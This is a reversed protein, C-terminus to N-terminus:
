PRAGGEGVETALPHLFEGVAAAFAQPQDAHVWHGAGAVQRVQARPFLRRIVTEHEGRIYDSQAGALFLVPGDYCGGDPFGLLDDMAALLVALNPRWRYGTAGSELNQLLFARVRPDPIHGALMADFEDRRGIGELRVARMARIYPAFTHTYRVPAIDVVVLREVLDPRTLALVMAAKGGMSHGLVAAPAGVREIVAAAERALFPYDMAETWPSAGHNPLDVAVVHRSAALANVIGAWNRASGLLGHLIVLGPGAGAEITHLRMVRSHHGRRMAGTLRPLPQM